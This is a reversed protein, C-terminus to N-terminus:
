SCCTAEYVHKRLWELAPEVLKGFLDEKDEEGIQLDFAHDIGEALVLETDVGSDRLSEHAKVSLKFDLFVDSKGHLFYTPPFKSNFQNAADIRDYDGDPVLSSISTGSKLQQIFWACRPNSLNPRGAVFM